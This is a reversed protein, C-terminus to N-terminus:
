DSLEGIRTFRKYLFTSANPGRMARELDQMNTFFCSSLQCIAAYVDYGRKTEVVFGYSCGASGSCEQVIKRPNDYTTWSGVHVRVNELNEGDVTDINISGDQANTLKEDHCGGWKGEKDDRVCEQYIGPYVHVSYKSAPVLPYKSQFCGGLFMLVIGILLKNINM